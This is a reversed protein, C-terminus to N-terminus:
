KISSQRQTDSLPRSPEEHPRGLTLSSGNTRIVNQYWYFSNKKIRRLDKEDNEDRNVYVFGYRKQYGNLWSLLDTFSWSCYGILDVGDTIAQRCEALHADLYTIRHTDNVVDGPELTDFEGLGNRPSLYPCDTAAPLEGFDL